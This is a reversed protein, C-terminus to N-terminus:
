QWVAVLQRSRFFRIISPVQGFVIRSSRRCQDNWIATINTQRPSAPTALVLSILKPRQSFVWVSIGMPLEPKAFERAALVHDNLGIHDVAIRTVANTDSKM